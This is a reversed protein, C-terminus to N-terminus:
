SMEDICITLAKPKITDLLLVSRRDIIGLPAAGKEQLYKNIKRIHRKQSLSLYEKPQILEPISRKEEASAELVRM